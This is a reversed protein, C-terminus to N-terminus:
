NRLSWARQWGVMFHWTCPMQPGNLSQALPVGLEFALRHERIAGSQGALNLGVLGMLRSGGYNAPDATPVPGAIMADQGEIGGMQDLQLRATFAAAPAPQYMAWATAIFDNGLRYGEANEGTRIRARLQGGVSTKGRKTQVVIGPQADWTGSGLQMAYPLRVERTMGNPLLADGTYDRRGVPLGVGALMHARVPGDSLGILATLSADSFGSTATDFTGIPNGPMNHTELTMDRAMTMGMGMLTIRGTLGYMAGFMHMNMTMERPLIRMKPPQGPRGFFPNDVALSEADSLEATGDQLGQMVMPMLRYSLMFEGGGHLHEGMVGIPAHGDANYPAQENEDSTDPPDPADNRSAAASSVAFFFLLAAAAGPLAGRRRGSSLLLSM